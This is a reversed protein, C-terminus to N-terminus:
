ATDDRAVEMLDALDIRVELRLFLELSSLDMVRTQGAVTVDFFQRRGLKVVVVRVHGDPTILTGLIERDVGGVM